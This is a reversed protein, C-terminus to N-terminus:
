LIGCRTVLVSRGLLAHVQFYRRRSLSPYPPPSIEAPQQAYKIIKIIAKDYRLINLCNELLGLLLLTSKIPLTISIVVKETTL